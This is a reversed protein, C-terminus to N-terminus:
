SEFKNAIKELDDIWGKTIKEFELLQKYYNEVLKLRKKSREDKVRGTYEEMLPPLIDQTPKVFNNIVANLKMVNLKALNKEMYFFVKKTGPKKMRRVMGITELMRMTNSISALSYGTRKAIDEMPIEEPETYLLGIVKASLDDLGYARGLRTMFEMVERDFEDM